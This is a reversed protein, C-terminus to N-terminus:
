LGQRAEREGYRELRAGGHLAAFDIRGVDDGPQGPGIRGELTLDDDKGGVDIVDADAGGDVAIANVVAGHVVAGAARQQDVHGGVERRAFRRRVLRPARDQEGEDGRFLLAQQARFVKGRMGGDIRFRDHRIDVNVHEQGDNGQLDELYLPDGLGIEAVAGNGDRPRQVDLRDRVRLRQSVTENAAILVAEDAVSNRRDFQVDAELGARGLLRNELLPEGLPVVGGRVVQALGDIEAGGGEVLLDGAPEEEFDGIRVGPRRPFRVREEPAVGVLSVLYAVSAARGEDGRHGTGRRRRHPGSQLTAPPESTTRLCA